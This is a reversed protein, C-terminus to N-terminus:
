GIHNFDLGSIQIHIQLGECYERFAQAEIRNENLQSKKDTDKEIDKLKAFDGERKLNETIERDLDALTFTIESRKEDKFRKFLRRVYEQFGRAKLYQVEYGYAIRPDIARVRFEAALRMKQGYFELDNYLDELTLTIKTKAENVRM